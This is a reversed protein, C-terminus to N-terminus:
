KQPRGHGLRDKAVEQAQHVVVARRELHGGEQSSSLEVHGLDLNLLEKMSSHSTGL